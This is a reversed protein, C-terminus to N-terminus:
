GKLKVRFVGKMRHLFSGKGKAISKLSLLAWEPELGATQM